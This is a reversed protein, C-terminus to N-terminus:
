GKNRDSNPLVAQFLPRPKKTRCDTLQFIQEVDLDKEILAEKIQHTKMDCPLGTIVVKIRRPTLYQINNATLFSILERHMDYTDPFLKIFIGAKQRRITGFKENILKLDAEFNLSKKMMISPPWVAPIVVKEAGNPVHNDALCAMRHSTSIEEHVCSETKISLRESPAEFENEFKGEGNAPRRDISKIRKANRDPSSIHSNSRKM